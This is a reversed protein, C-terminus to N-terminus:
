YRKIYEDDSGITDIQYHFDAELFYVPNAYNNAVTTDRILSCILMDSVGANGNATGKNATLVTDIPFIIHTDLVDNQVDRTATITTEAPFVGNIGAWSYTMNFKVNQAGLGLGSVPLTIHIHFKLDTDFKYSHPLQAVFFIRNNNNNAFSLVQGGKYLQETPPNTPGLKVSTAPFRLDDWVTATTGYSDIQETTYRRVFGAM